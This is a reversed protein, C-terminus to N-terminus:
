AAAVPGGQLVPSCGSSFEILCDAAELLLQDHDAVVVTAGACTSARLATILAEVDQEHEGAAPLDLTILDRRGLRPLERALQLRLREARELSGTGSGLPLHGLGCRLAADLRKGLSRERQLWQAATEVTQVLVESIRYGRVTAEDVDERFRRGQCQPCSITLDELFDMDYHLVGMGECRTCRGGPADLRFWELPYGRRQAVPSAAFLRAIGEGLGLHLLVAVDPRGSTDDICLARVLGRHGRFVLSQGHRARGKLAPLLLDDIFRTKGSGSPGALAILTGMPLLLDVPGSPPLAPATLHLLGAGANRGSVCGGAPAVEPSGVTQNAAFDVVQDAAERIAKGGNVVVVTNGHDVLQRLAQVLDPLDLAHMLGGLGEFVYLMGMLGTSLCRALAMRVREGDAMHAVQRELPLGGLGLRGAIHMRHRLEAAPGDARTWRELHAQLEDLTMRRMGTISTDGLLVGDSLPHRDAHGSLLDDPTPRPHITACGTCTLQQNLWLQRGTDIAEVLCRGGSVARANRVAELLRSSLATGPQLRDVVIEMKSCATVAAEVNPSDLRVVQGDLRLRAFGAGRIEAVLERDDVTGRSYPALFLCREEPMEAAVLRAAADASLARCSEGCLPCQIRGEDHLLQCLSEELQLARGLNGDRRHSRCDVHVAPPLGSISEVAVQELGGLGAREGPALALLYKRRSEAVLVDVAMTRAGAGAPGRLCILANRRIRISAGRLVGENADLVQISPISQDHTPSM